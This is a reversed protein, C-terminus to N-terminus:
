LMAGENTPSVEPIPAVQVGEQLYRVGASVVINNPKLGSSVVVMGDTQIESLVVPCLKVSQSAADYLWVASGGENEFIATVPVSVLDSNDTKFSVTVITSMGPSPLPTKQDKKFRLRMSYLQNLNAKHNVAILELPFEVNPYVEFTCSFSKFNEREVYIKAPIHIIVEPTDNSILSLIPMGAAVTENRDFYQKQIYGDFPAILKTDALANKHANYKATIQQLGSTAKEYDNKSVSEQDYLRIVREAEGKIQKYEAETASLQIAYDRSDMEALVQGKRVFQGESVYVKQIPGAIRFALNVESAATVKGSFTLIKSEGYPTAISTKVTKVQQKQPKDSKCASALLLIGSLLLITTRKM